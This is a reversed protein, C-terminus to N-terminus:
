LVPAGPREVAAPFCSEIAVRRDVGGVFDFKLFGEETVHTVILGVEDMHACLMLRDGAARAGKKWVILNGLPDVKMSRAWPRAREALFERVQDEDGSVGNLACLTKLLEKM